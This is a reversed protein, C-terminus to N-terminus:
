EFVTKKGKHFFSWSIVGIAKGYIRTYLKLFPLENSKESSLTPFAQSLTTRLAIGKAVVANLPFPSSVRCLLSCFFLIRQRKQATPFRERRLRWFRVVINPRLSCESQRSVSKGLNLLFFLFFLPPPFGM